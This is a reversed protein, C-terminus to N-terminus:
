LRLSARIAKAEEVESREFNAAEEKVQLSSRKERFGATGECKTCEKCM